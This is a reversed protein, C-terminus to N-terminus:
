KAESAIWHFNIGGREGLKPPKHSAPTFDNLCWRRASYQYQQLCRRATRVSVKQRAFSGLEQSLARSLAAHDMLAMCTVHRDQRSSTIPPRQSRARREMNGGQVSQNWIKSFTMPDRGVGAATDSASFVSASGHEGAMHHIRRDERDTTVRAHNSYLKGSTSSEWFWQQWWNYVTFLKRGLREVIINEFIGPKDRITRAALFIQTILDEDSPVPKEPFPHLHHSGTPDTKVFGEM